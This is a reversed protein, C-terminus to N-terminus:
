LNHESGVNRYLYDLMDFNQTTLQHIKFCFESLSITGEQFLRSFERVRAALQEPPM